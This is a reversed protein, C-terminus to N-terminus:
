SWGATVVVCVSKKHEVVVYNVKNDVQRRFEQTNDKQVPLSIDATNITKIVEQESILRQKMRELVHKTFVVRKSMLVYWLYQGRALLNPEIFSANEIRIHQIPFDLLIKARLNM